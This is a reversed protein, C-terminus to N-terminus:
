KNLAKELENGIENRVANFLEPSETYTKLDLTVAKLKSLVWERGLVSDAMLLMECDEMGDRVTELRVSACPGDLGVKNGNYLMSGDGFVNPSLDPVTAMNEWPDNILRWYNTHWYLFGTAGVLHQQWFLIRHDLGDENVYMNVYPKGPEWCVYQWIQKGEAQAKEMRSAFSGFKEKQGPVRYIFEDDFCTIKPLILDLNSLLVSIQDTNEDISINRFFASTLRVAPCLKRLRECRQVLTDVHEKTTPEDLPYLYAKKNWDPNSGLKEGYAKVVEDDADYKLMFCTLRPDSMYKDAREDLPDYPLTFPSVRYSLLMEFYKEYLEQAKEGSVKHLKEIGDRGVDMACEVTRKEPLAFNWVKVRVTYECIENEGDTLAFVFCYKGAETQSSTTFRIRINTLKGGELDFSEVPVLPDPWEDGNCSIFYEKEVEVKFGDHTKVPKVTLNKMDKDSLLAIVCSEGENKAMSLKIETTNHCCCLERVKSYGPFVKTKLM